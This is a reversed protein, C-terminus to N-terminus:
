AHTRKAAQWAREAEETTIAASRAEGVAGWAAVYPTRRRVKAAAHRAVRDLSGEPRVSRGRTPLAACLMLANFLVDGCEAALHGSAADVTSTDGATKAKSRLVEEAVLAGKVEELESQLHAVLSLVTQEHTWPCGGQDVPRNLLQVTEALLALGPFKCDSVDTNMSDPLSWPYVHRSRSSMSVTFGLASAVLGLAGFIRVLAGTMMRM